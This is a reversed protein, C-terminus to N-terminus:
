LGSVDRDRRWVLSKFTVTFAEADGNLNKADCYVKLTVISTKEDCQLNQRRLLHNLLDSFSVFLIRLYSGKNNYDCYTTVRSTLQFLQVDCKM